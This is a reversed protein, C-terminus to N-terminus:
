REYWHYLLLLDHQEYKSKSLLNIIDHDNIEGDKIGKFKRNVINIGVPKEKDGNSYFIHNLTFDENKILSNSIGKKKIHFKM